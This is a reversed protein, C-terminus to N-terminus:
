IDDEDPPVIDNAVELNDEEFEDEEESPLDTERVENEELMISDGKGM